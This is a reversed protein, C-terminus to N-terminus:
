EEGTVDGNDMMGNNQMAEMMDEMSTNTNWMETKIKLEGNQRQWVTLYKGNDTISQTNDPPTMTVDYTGIEFIMDGSEFVETTTLDINTMKYGSQMEKESHQRIAEKGKLMPQYSPMSIADESYFEMIESLNQNEVATEMRNNINEIESKLVMNGQANVVSVQIILVLVIICLFGSLKM